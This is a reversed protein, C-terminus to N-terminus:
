SLSYSRQSQSLIWFIVNLVNLYSKIISNEFAHDLLNSSSNLGSHREFHLRQHWMLNADGDFEADGRQDKLPHMMYQVGLLIPILPICKRNDFIADGGFVTDRFHAKLLTLYFIFSRCLWFFIGENLPYLKQIYNSLALM